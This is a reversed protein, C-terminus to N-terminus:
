YQSKIQGWNVKETPTVLGGFMGSYGYWGPYQVSSDSGFKLAVEITQGVYPSLDWCDLVWGGSFGSFGPEGGTCNAGSYIADEPYGGIPAVVVGNITLNGGDYYNEIDYYHCIELLTCAETVEYGEHVVAIEGANNPYTSSLATGLVDGVPEGDCGLPPVNNDPGYGWVPSGGCDQAIFGGPWELCINVLGCEVPTRDSQDGEVPVKEAMAPMAILGALAIVLVYRM